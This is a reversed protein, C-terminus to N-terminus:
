YSGTFCLLFRIFTEKLKSLRQQERGKFTKVRGFTKTDFILRSSLPEGEEGEGNEEKKKGESQGLVEVM